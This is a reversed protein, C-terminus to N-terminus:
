DSGLSFKRVAGHAIWFGIPGPLSADTVQILFAMDSPESTCETPLTVTGQFDANGQSSLPVSDTPVKTAAAGASHNCILIGRVATVAGPTGIVGTPFPSGGLVLGDVDFKIRGTDLNVHARGRNTTWPSLIGPVGGVMSFNSPVIGEIREWRISPGDAWVTSSTVLFLAAVAPMIKHYASIYM